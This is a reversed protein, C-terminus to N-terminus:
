LQRIQPVLIGEEWMAVTYRRVKEVRPNKENRKKDRVAEKEKVMRLPVTVPAAATVTEEAGAMAATVGTTVMRPPM